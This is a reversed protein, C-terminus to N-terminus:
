NAYCFGGILPSAISLSGIIKTNFKQSLSQKTHQASAPNHPMCTNQMVISELVSHEFHGAGPLVVHKLVLRWVRTQMFKLGGMCTINLPLRSVSKKSFM